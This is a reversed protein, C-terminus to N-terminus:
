KYKKSTIAVCFIYILSFYDSLLLHIKKKKCIHIVQIETNSAKTFFYSIINLSDM